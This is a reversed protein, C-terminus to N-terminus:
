DEERPLLRLFREEALNLVLHGAREAMRLTQGAGSAPRTVYAICADSEDVLAQNRDRMVNKDYADRVYRYGDSATILARYRRLDEESWGYSQDRCPLILYLHVGPHRARFAVTREAALTDFGLAGGAYFDRCGKGYLAAIAADLERAIRATHECPLNRHGTFCCAKRTETVCAGRRKRKM